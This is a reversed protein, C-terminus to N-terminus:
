QLTTIVLLLEKDHTGITFVIAIKGKLILLLIIKRLSPAM